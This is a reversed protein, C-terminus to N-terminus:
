VRIIRTTKKHGGSGYSTGDLQQSFVILAPLNPAFLRSVARRRIQAPAQGLLRASEQNAGIVRDAYPDIVLQASAAENFYREFPM